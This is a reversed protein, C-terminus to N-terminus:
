GFIDIYKNKVEIIKTKFVPLPIRKILREIFLDIELKFFINIFFRILDFFVINYYYLFKLENYEFNPLNTNLRRQYANYRAMHNYFKANLKNKGQSIGRSHERYYYLPTNIFKFDTVESLKYFIDKDVAKKQFREFGKTKLYIEKKFTKFHSIPPNILWNGKKVDIARIYKDIECNKLAHNCRWMTSYIFGFKPYDDYAKAITELALKHLVDDSDLICFLGNNSATIATQLTAGYGANEKHKVLKIRDNDLFHNIVEISDDSSKDDVIILEWYPCSQNLVSKISEEIYAANNYNAMLISFHTKETAKTENM